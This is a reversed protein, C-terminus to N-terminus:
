KDREPVGPQGRLIYHRKRLWNSEEPHRPRESNEVGFLHGDMSPWTMILTASAPYMFLRLGNISADNPLALNTNM